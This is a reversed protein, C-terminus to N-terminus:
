DKFIDQLTKATLVREGWELLRDADASRVRDEVESELSGFKLRLLRLVMRAGEEQRGEQLGEQRGEERIERNWRDISEALMTELEELTLTAADERSLGFRPLIVKQLWTEFARRLSAEDSERNDHKDSVFSADALEGSDFDIREVWREGLIEQLLDQIMRRHVFFLRYSLDHQGLIKGPSEVM